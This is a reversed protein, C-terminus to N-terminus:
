GNRKVSPRLDNFPGRIIGFVLDPNRMSVPLRSYDSEAPPMFMTEVIKGVNRTPYHSQQEHNM